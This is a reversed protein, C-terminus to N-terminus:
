DKVEKWGKEDMFHVLNHWFQMPALAEIIQSPYFGLGDFKIEGGYYQDLDDSYRQHLEDDTIIEEGNTYYTTM